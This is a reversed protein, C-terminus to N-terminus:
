MDLRIEASGAFVQDVFAVCQSVYKVNAVAAHLDHLVVHDNGNQTLVKGGRAM